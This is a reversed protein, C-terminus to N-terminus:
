FSIARETLRTDPWLRLGRELRNEAEIMCNDGIIAGDLIHVKAGIQNGRGIVCSRLVAGEAIQNDAWLIAGELLSEAGITCGAGISTPGIIRARAGIRVGNGILIPGVLEASPHIEADGELWIRNTIERGRMKYHFKGILIDHHVELYAQPKGIDTWYARSPYGYM